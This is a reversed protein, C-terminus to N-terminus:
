WEGLWELVDLWWFEGLWECEGLWGRWVRLEKLEMCLTLDRALFIGEGGVEGGRM